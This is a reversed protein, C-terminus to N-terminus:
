RTVRWLRRSGYVGLLLMGVGAIVQRWVPADGWPTGAVFANHRDVTYGIAGTVLLFAGLALASFVMAYAPSPRTPPREPWPWRGQYWRYASLLVITVVFAPALLSPVEFWVVLTIVLALAALEAPRMM